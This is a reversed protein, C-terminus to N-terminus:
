SPPKEPSSALKCPWEKQLSIIFLVIKRATGSFDYFAFLSVAEHRLLRLDFHHLAQRRGAQV